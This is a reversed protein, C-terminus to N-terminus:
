DACREKEPTLAYGFRHLSRAWDEDSVDAYLGTIEIVAHVRSAAYGANSFATYWSCHEFSIRRTISKGASTTTEFAAAVSFFPM